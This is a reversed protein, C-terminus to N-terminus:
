SWTTLAARKWTNNAVCVYIYNSDYLITGPVGNSSSNGSFTPRTATTITTNDSFRIGNNAITIGKFYGASWYNTTNGLQYNDSTHPVVNSHITGHVHVLQAANSETVGLYVNGTATLDDTVVNSVNINSSLSVHGSANVTLNNAVIVVGTCSTNAIGVVVPPLGARFNNITIKRTVATGATNSVVIFIDNNTITTTAALETLKKTRDVM